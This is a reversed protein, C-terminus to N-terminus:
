DNDELLLDDETEEFVASRACEPCLCDGMFDLAGLAGCDDCIAREDFPITRDSM